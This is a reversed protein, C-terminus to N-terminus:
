FEKKIIINQIQEQLDEVEKTAHEACVAKMRTNNHRLYSIPQWPALLVHYLNLVETRFSQKHWDGIIIYIQYETILFPVLNKDLCRLEIRVKVM